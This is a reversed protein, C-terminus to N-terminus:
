DFVIFYAKWLELQLKNDRKSSSQISINGIIVNRTNKGREQVCCIFSPISVKFKEVKVDM